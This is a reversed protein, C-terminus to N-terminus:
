LILPIFSLPKTKCCILGNFCGDKRYIEPGWRKIWLLQVKDLINANGSCEPSSQGFDDGIFTRTNFSLLSNVGEFRNAAKLQKTM